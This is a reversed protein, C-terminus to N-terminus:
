VDFKVLRIFYSNRFVFSLKYQELTIEFHVSRLYCLMSKLAHVFSLTNKYNLIEYYDRIKGMVAAECYM